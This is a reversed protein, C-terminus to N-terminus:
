KQARRGARSAPDDRRDLLLPTYEGVEFRGDTQLVVPQIGAPRGDAYTM